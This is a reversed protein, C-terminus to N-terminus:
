IGTNPSSLAFSDAQIYEFYQSTTAILNTENLHREINETRNM